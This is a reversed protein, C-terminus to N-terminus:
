NLICLLVFGTRVKLESLNESLESGRLIFTHLIYADLVDVLDTCDPPAEAIFMEAYERAMTLTEAGTRRLHTDAPPARLLLDLATITYVQTLCKLISRRIFPTAGPLKLGNQGVDLGTNVGTHICIIMHAYAHSPNRKLVERAMAVAGARDGTGGSVATELDLVDAMDLYKPDGRGRLCEAAARMCDEWSRYPKAVQELNPIDCSRRICRSHLLHQAMTVGFTFFDGQDM